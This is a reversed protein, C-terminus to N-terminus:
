KCVVTPIIPRTKMKAPRSALKAPVRKKFYAGFLRFYKSVMILIMVSIETSAKATREMITGKPPCKTIIMIAKNNVPIPDKPSCGKSHTAKSSIAKGM